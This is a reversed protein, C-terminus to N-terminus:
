MGDRKFGPLRINLRYELPTTEVEIWSDAPPPMHSLFPAYPPTTSSHPSVTRSAMSSQGLAGPASLSSNGLNAAGPYSLTSSASSTSASSTSPGALFNGTISRTRSPPLVPPLESPDVIKPVPPPPTQTDASGNSEISRQSVAYRSMFGMNPPPSPPPLIIPPEPPQSFVSSSSNSDSSTPRRRLATAHATTELLTNLRQRAEDSSLVSSTRASAPHACDFLNNRFAHANPNNPNHQAGSSSPPPSRFSPPDASKPPSPSLSHSTSPLTDTSSGSSNRSELQPGDVDEASSEPVQSRAVESVFGRLRGVDSNHLEGVKPLTYFPIQSPLPLSASSSRDVSKFSDWSPKGLGLQESNYINLGEETKSRGLQPPSTKENDAETGSSIVSGGSGSSSSHPLSYPRPFPHIQQSSAPLMGLATYTEYLHSPAGRHPSNLAGLANTNSNQSLSLAPSPPKPSPPKDVATWGSDEIEEFVPSFIDKEKDKASSHSPQPFTAKRPSRPGKLPVDFYSFEAQGGQVQLSPSPM